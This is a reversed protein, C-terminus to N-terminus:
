LFFVVLFGFLFANACATPSTAHMTGNEPVSTLSGNAVIGSRGVMRDPRDGAKMM